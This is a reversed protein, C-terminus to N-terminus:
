RAGERRAEMTCAVKTKTIAEFAKVLQLVSVEQGTGLNYTKYKLHIKNLKSLAAIHGSVLDM